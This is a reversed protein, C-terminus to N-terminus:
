LGPLSTDTIKGVGIAAIKKAYPAAIPELAVNDSMSIHAGPVTGRSHTLPVPNKYTIGERLAMDQLPKYVLTSAEVHTKLAGSSYLMDSILQLSKVYSEDILPYSPVLERAKIVLDIPLHQNDAYARCETVFHEASLNSAELFAQEWAMALHPATKLFDTRAIVNASTFMGNEYPAPGKADGPFAVMKGWGEREAQLGTMAGWVLADIAGSKLAPVGATVTMNVLRVDTPTMGNTKLLLLLWAHALSGFPVAISKGKLDKLSSYSSKSPVILTAVYYTRTLTSIVRAMGPRASELLLAPAEDLLAVDIDGAQFAQSLQPGSVFHTAEVCVNAAKLIAMTTLTPAGAHIAGTPVDGVRICNQDARAVSPGSATVCIVSIATM